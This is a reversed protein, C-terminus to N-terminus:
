FISYMPELVSTFALDQGTIVMLEESEHPALIQFDGPKRSDHSVRGRTVRVGSYLLFPPLPRGPKEDFPPHYIMNGWGNNKSDKPGKSFGRVMQWSPKLGEM